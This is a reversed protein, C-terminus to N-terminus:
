SSRGANTADKRLIALIHLVRLGDASPTRTCHLINVMLIEADIAESGGWEVVIQEESM